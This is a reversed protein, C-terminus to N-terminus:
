KGRYKTTGGGSVNACAVFTSASVKSITTFKPNSRSCTTSANRCWSLFLAVTAYKKNSSLRRLKNPPYKPASNSAPSNGCRRPDTPSATPEFPLPTPGRRGDWTCACRICCLSTASCRHISPDVVRIAGASTIASIKRTSRKMFTLQFFSPGYLRFHRYLSAATATCPSFPSTPCAPPTRASAPAPPSSEAISSSPSSSAPAPAPTPAGAGAFPVGTFSMRTLNSIWTYLIFSSRYMISKWRMSPPTIVQM